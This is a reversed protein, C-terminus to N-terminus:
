ASEIKQQLRRMGRLSREYDDAKRRFHDAVEPHPLIIDAVVVTGAGEQSFRRCLAYGIGRAGGTVIVVKDRIRM